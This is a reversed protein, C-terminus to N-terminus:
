SCTTPGSRTFQYWKRAGTADLLQTVSFSLTDGTPSIASGAITNLDVSIDGFTGDSRRIELAVYRVDEEC